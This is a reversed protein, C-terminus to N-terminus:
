VKNEGLRALGDTWRGRARFSRGCSRGCSHSRVDVGGCVSRLVDTRLGTLRAMFVSIVRPLLRWMPRRGLGLFPAGRVFPTFAAVTGPRVVHGAAAILALNEGEFIRRPLLRACATQGAVAVTFLLRMKSRGCMGAAINAAEVAVRGM